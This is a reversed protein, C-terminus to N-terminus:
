DRPRFNVLNNFFKDIGMAIPLVIFGVRLTVFAQHAPDHKARGLAARLRSTDHSQARFSAVSM